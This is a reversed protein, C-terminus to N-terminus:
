AGCVAEIQVSVTSGTSVTVNYPAAYIWGGQLGATSHDPFTECQCTGGNCDTAITASVTEDLGRNRPWTTVGLASATYDSYYYIQVNGGSLTAGSLACLTIRYGECGTIRMAGTHTTSRGCTDTTAGCPAATPAGSPPTQSLSLTARVQRPTKTRTQALASVTFVLCALLITRRNTLWGPILRPRRM